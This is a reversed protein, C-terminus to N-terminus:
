ASLGCSCGSLKSLQVVCIIFSESSLLAPGLGILFIFYFYFRLRIMFSFFWLLNWYLSPRCLTHSSSRLVTGIMLVFFTQFVTLWSFGLSVHCSLPTRSCFLSIVQCNLFDSQSSMKLLLTGINTLQNCCIFWVLLYTIPSFM